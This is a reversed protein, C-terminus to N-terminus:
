DGYIPLDFDRKTGSSVKLAAGRTIADRGFRDHLSDLAQQM